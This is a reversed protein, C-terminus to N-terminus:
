LITNHLLYINVLAIVASITIVYGVFMMALNLVQLNQKLKTNM